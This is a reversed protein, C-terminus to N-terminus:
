PMSAPPMTSPVTLTKLGFAIVSPLPSTCIALRSRWVPPTRASSNLGPM